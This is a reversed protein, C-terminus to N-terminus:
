IMDNTCSLPAPHDQSSDDKFLANQLLRTDESIDLRHCHAWWQAYSQTDSVMNGVSTIITEQSMILM